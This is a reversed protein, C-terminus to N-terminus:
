VKKGGKKALFFISKFSKKINLFFLKGLTDKIKIVLALENYWAMDNRTPWYLEIGSLLDILYELATSSVQM